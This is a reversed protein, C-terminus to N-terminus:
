DPYGWLRSVGVIMIGGCDPDGCYLDECDPDGCDPDRVIQGHRCATNGRLRSGRVIQISSM